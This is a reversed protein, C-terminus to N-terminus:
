IPPSNRIIVNLSGTYCTTKPSTANIAIRALKWTAAGQRLAPPCSSCGQSVITRYLRAGMPLSTGFIKEMEAKYIRMDSAHRGASPDLTEDWFEALHNHLTKAEQLLEIRHRAQARRLNILEQQSLSRKTDKTSKHM